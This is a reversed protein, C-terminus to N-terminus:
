NNIKNKIKQSFNHPAAQLALIGCLHAPSMFDWNFKSM